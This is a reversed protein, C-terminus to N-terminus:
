SEKIEKYAENLNSLLRIYDIYEDSSRDCEKMNDLTEKISKIIPLRKLTVAKARDNVLNDIDDISINMYTNIDNGKNIEENLLDEYEVIINQCPAIVSDEYNDIYKFTNNVMEEIISYDGDELLQQFLENLIITALANKVEDKNYKSEAIRNALEPIMDIDINKDKVYENIDNKMDEDSLYLKNLVILKSNLNITFISNLNNKINKNDLYAIIKWKDSVSVGLESMLDDLEEYDTFLETNDESLLKIYKKYINTESASNEEHTDKVTNYEEIYNKVLEDLVEYNTLVSDNENIRLIKALISIDSSDYVKTNISGYKIIIKEIEEAKSSDLNDGMTNLLDIRTTLENIFNEIVQNM